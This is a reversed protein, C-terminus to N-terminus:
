EDARVKELEYQYLLNSVRSFFPRAVSEYEYDGDNVTDNANTYMSMSLFFHVRDKPNLIYAVETTFGYSIGIKSWTEIGDNSRMGEGHMIYKYINDPYKQVQNYKGSGTERPSIKLTNLLFAQNEISINWQKNESFAVPFILRILMEHLNELSIDLNYNFDFPGQVIVRNKNEHKSGLLKLSDYPLAKLMVDPDCWKEGEEYIITDNSMVYFANTYLQDSTGCGTFARYIHSNEFGKKKLEANITSPSLFNYLANYHWNDSAAIMDELLERFTQNQDRSNRAYLQNGCNQHGDIKLVMDLDLNLREMKELLLLATPLKVVSAPFFYDNTTGDVTNLGIGDGFQTYMFQLKYKEPHNLVEDVLPDKGKLYNIVEATSNLTQGYTFPM